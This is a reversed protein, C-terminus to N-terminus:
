IRDQTLEKTSVIISTVTCDHTDKTPIVLSHMTKKYKLEKTPLLTM